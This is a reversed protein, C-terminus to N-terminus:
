SLGTVATFASPRYVGLALREEARIATVNSQFWTSHSNTAEVTIGSRRFLAAATAFSLGLAALIPLLPHLRTNM